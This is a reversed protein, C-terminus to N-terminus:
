SLDLGLILVVAQTSPVVYKSIDSTSFSVSYLRQGDVPKFIQDSM